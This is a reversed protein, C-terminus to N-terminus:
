RLMMGLLRCGSSVVGAGMSLQYLTNMALSTGSFFTSGVTFARSYNIPFYALAATLSAEQAIDALTLLALRMAGQRDAPDRQSLRRLRNQAALSFTLEAGPFVSSRLIQYYPSTM